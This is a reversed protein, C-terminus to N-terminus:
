CEVVKFPHLTSQYNKKTYKNIYINSLSTKYSFCSSNYHRDVHYSYQTIYKTATIEINQTLNIM